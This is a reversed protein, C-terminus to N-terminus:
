ERGHVEIRAQAGESHFRMRSLNGSAHLVDPHGEHGKALHATTEIIETVSNTGTFLSIM